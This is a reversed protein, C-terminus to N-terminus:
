LKNRHRLFGFAMGLGGLSIGALIFGSAWHSSGANQASELQRRVADGRDVGPGAVRIPEGARLDVVIADPRPTGVSAETFLGMDLPSNVDEWEFSFSWTRHGGDPESTDVDLSLPVWVDDVQEWGASSVCRYGVSPDISECEIREATFGRHENIYIHFRRPQKTETTFSLRVIGEGLQDVQPAWEVLRDVWKAFDPYGQHPRSSNRLGIEVTLGCLRLDLHPMNRAGMQAGAPIILVQGDIREETDKKWVLGKDPTYASRTMKHILASSGDEDDIVCGVTMCDLRYCQTHHNFSAFATIDDSVPRRCYAKHDTATVHGEVRYTGSVLKERESRLGALYYEPDSGYAFTTALVFCTTASTILGIHPLFRLSPM